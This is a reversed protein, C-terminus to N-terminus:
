KSTSIVEFNSKLSPVREVLFEQFRTLKSAYDNNLGSKGSKKRLQKTANVIENILPDHNSVLCLQDDSLDDGLILEEDDDIRIVDTEDSEEGEGGSENSSVSIEGEEGEDVDYFDDDNEYDVTETVEVKIITDDDDNEGSSEFVNNDDADLASITSIVHDPNSSTTLTYAKSHALNSKKILLLKSNKHFSFFFWFQVKIEVYM